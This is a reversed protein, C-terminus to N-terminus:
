QKNVKELTELVDKLTTTMSELLFKVKYFKEQDKDKFEKMMMKGIMPLLLLQAQLKPIEKPFNGYCEIFEPDNMLSKKEESM